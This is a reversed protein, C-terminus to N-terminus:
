ALSQLFNETVIVVMSKNSNRHVYIPYKLLCFLFAKFYSTIEEVTAPYQQTKAKFLSVRLFPFMLELLM